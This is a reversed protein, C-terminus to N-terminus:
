IRAAGGEPRWATRLRALEVGDGVRRVSHRFGDGDDTADCISEITDGHRGEARFSIEVGVLRKARWVATPVAELAWAVYHVNNVHRNVDLDGLRVDYEQRHAAERPEPLRAFDDAMAREAVFPMDAAFDPDDVARRAAIDLVLWSSTAAGIPRDEGDLLRFERLFFRGSRTSAWTEVTLQERWRPYRDLRFHLRSIVWTLGRPLLQDVACGLAHAHNSGAEQLFNCLAVPSLRGRPDMDYSRVNFTERWRTAPNM